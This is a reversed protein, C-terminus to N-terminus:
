KGGIKSKQKQIISLPSFIPFRSGNFPIRKITHYMSPPMIPTSITRSHKYCVGCKLIIVYFATFTSCCHCHFSAQFVCTTLNPCKLAAITPCFSRRYLVFAFCSNSMYFCHITKSASFLSLVDLNSLRSSTLLTM